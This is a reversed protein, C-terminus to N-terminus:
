ELYNQRLKQLSRKDLGMEKELYNEINGYKNKISAFTANLYGEKAAMMSKATADTMGYQSKMVAIAAENVSKRYYNTAVYDEMITKESVGLAYLILAAAIGTRDKGASCHFVLSSDKSLLLLQHFVPKYRATFPSLDSYFKILSSDKDAQNLMNKMYNSDGVNESGAPLSIRIVNAPIRDPAIDVEHPGRFDLDYALAMSQLKKLDDGTLKDLAASRYIRGWKVHKGNSTQYGGIDRFNITGQLKVQRQASDAIQSLSMLPAFLLLIIIAKGM